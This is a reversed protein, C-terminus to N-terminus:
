RREIGIVRPAGAQDHAVHVDTTQAYGPRLTEIRLITYGDHDAACLLETTVQGATDARHLAPEGHQHGARDFTTIRYVTTTRDGDLHHVLALDDFTLHGETAVFHDLPAARSFVYRATARQRAVLVDTLYEVAKPDTLEGAEVAAHIQERTFAILKRAAWLQDFRDSVLLPRYAPLAPKWSSPDYTTADFLGVGRLAPAHRHEWPRDTLGLTFLSAGIASVDIVYSFGARQNRGFTAGAGLSRGFDVLYHMVYHRSKDAPDATWMDLFNGEKIDLHDLWAYVAYAGRLDRRREHAIRDNPDDARTGEDPHGGLPKGDLWRSALARIKGDPLHEVLALQRDLEARTLPRSGGFPNAIKADAPLELDSPQFSVIQDEPVNFGFAWLLRDVIVDSGTEIEPFGKMDFKILYKEGATDKVILGLSTGGIKTSTIKWPKHAEPDDHHIPGRRIADPTLNTRNTFWTSDPVEDIANVGEALHHREVSLARLVPRHFTADFTNLDAYYQREAPKRPVDLRDDVVIVPPANAFRVPQAAGCATIMLLALRKM